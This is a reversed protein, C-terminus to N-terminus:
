ATIDRHASPTPGAVMGTTIPSPKFGKVVLWVGLSLEWLFIPATAIAALVTIPDNSRFLTATASAILLPAGILGMVPILRPVLRSRYMLSGLLLANIGPMLSPGLLFTWDRVAILSRGTSVLSATDTGPVAALDQRLTVVALLSVVGVLIVAAELMRSTVFGLATAENQRKVVPFLAVATGICALANVVDLFCGWLVRTDAGSSVIYDANNLVPGLLFVAPISAAFTILYFLGAVLATKRTSGIPARSPATTPATIAM